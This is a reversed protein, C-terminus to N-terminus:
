RQSYIFTVATCVPVGVGNVLYPSYRWTMIGGMIRRDYSDYGTSRLPLVTEVVGQDDLCLRFSGVVKTAHSRGIKTKTHDDPSIMKNGFIRKGEILKTKGLGTFVIPEKGTHSPPPPYPLTETAPGQGPPYTMRVM